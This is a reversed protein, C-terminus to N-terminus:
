CILVHQEIPASDLAEGVPGPDHFTGDVVVIRGRSIVTTPWGVLRKGEYPSYDSAMHLEEARVIRSENPDLIVIDADSGPAMVGKRPHIGNLKAANTSTLAVFRELSLSRENVLETFLVPIRTEVGPLGNPMARVDDSEEAKQVTDYCCHDSGVTDVSGLLVRELVGAVASPSRLPPSCVFLEPQPGSYAESTLTLYHPCTETYARVGRVRADRVLDIAAPTSQHVFYVPVDLAEAMTLVQHVASLEALEPRTEAHHSASIQSNRAMREQYDEVLHNAEAHIYAMGGLDRLVEMVRLITGAEAMVVDRYTTFMKITRVGDAAMSRLQHPIDETWNVICGHLAADCRGSGAAERREAIADKPSQGRQPIAFDVVTTTGGWLAATTAEVYGDLTTYDGLSMGIHTHPDVGGPIVLQGTADLGRTGAHTAPFPENAALVHSIRDGTVCVTALGHGSDNVVIGGSIIVDVAENSM